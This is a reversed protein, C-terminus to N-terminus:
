CQSKSYIFLKFLLICMDKTLKEEVFKVPCYLWFKFNSSIFCFIFFSSGLCRLVVVSGVFFGGLRRWVAMMLEIGSWSDREKKDYNFLHQQSPAAAGTNGARACASKRPLFITANITLIVFKLKLTSFSM